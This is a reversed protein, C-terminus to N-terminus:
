LTCDRWSQARADVRELTAMSGGGLHFFFSSVFSATLCARRISLISCRELVAECKRKVRDAPAHRSDLTVLFPYYLIQQEVWNLNFRHDIWQVAGAKLLEYSLPRMEMHWERGGKEEYENYTKELLQRHYKPSLVLVGTQVVENFGSPLGYNNYYEQASYNIVAESGWLQYLRTLAHSFWERTPASTAEVAGVKDVPVGATVCPASASNILIDSDLWVIREYRQAFDQNLILCKQWAPSRRKARDSNDLPRDICILDYGHKSAYAQWNPKCWKKWPQYYQDGIALTVIAKRASM